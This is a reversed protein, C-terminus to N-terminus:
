VLLGAAVLLLAVALTVAGLPVWGLAVGIALLVLLVGVVQRAKPPGPAQTEGHDRHNYVAHSLM